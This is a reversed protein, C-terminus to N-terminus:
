CINRYLINHLWQVVQVSILQYVTRLRRQIGSVSDTGAMCKTVVAHVLGSRPGRGAAQYVSRGLAGNRGFPQTPQLIGINNEEFKDGLPIVQLPAPVSRRKWKWHAVTLLRAAPLACSKQGVEIRQAPM